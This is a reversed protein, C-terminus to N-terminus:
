AGRGPALCSFSITAREGDADTAILCQGVIFKTTDTGAVGAVARGVNNTTVQAGAALAAGAVIESVGDVMVEAAVGLAHPDNQLIGYPIDTVATVAAVRGANDLKVWHYQKTTLDAAAERTIVRGPIEM